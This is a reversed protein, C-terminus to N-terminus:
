LKLVKLSILLKPNFIEKMHAGKDALWLELELEIQKRKETLGEM